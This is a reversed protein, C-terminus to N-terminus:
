QMSKTCETGKRPKSFLEAFFFIFSFEGEDMAKQLLCFATRQEGRKWRQQKLFSSTYSSSSSCCVCSVLFVDDDSMKETMENGISNHTATTTTVVRPNSVAPPFFFFFSFSALFFLSWSREKRGENQLSKVDEFPFFTRLSAKQIVKNKKENKKMNKKRTAHTLWNATLAMAAAAKIRIEARERERERRWRVDTSFFRVFPM